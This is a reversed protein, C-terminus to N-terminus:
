KFTYFTDRKIQITGSLFTLEENADFYRLESPCEAVNLHIAYGPLSKTNVIKKNILSLNNGILEYVEPNDQPMSIGNATQCLLTETNYIQNDLCCKPWCLTDNTSFSSCNQVEFMSSHITNNWCYCFTAKMLCFLIIFTKSSNM